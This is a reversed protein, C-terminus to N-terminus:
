FRVRLSSLLKRMANARHPLGFQPSGVVTNLGAYTVRNLINTADIRWDMSWRNSLLFTRTIGTNLSFQAPGTISNRGANGWEGPEPAGFAAPNVYFGHPADDVPAGTYSARLAGTLGTGALSTLYLPTAPLGSGVSLQSTFVWNRLFSTGAYEVQATLLHRQDFASPAREADLDLWNQAIAGGSLDATTFAAANDTAKAFTYNAVAMLGQRLRRRVQLQAANKLSSGNSALYVFGSPCSACPNAAGLPYTNPVFEQMLHSGKTGLYTAIVTLSAPLDRQVSVQWNHAYSVRFDPDVAFTNALARAPANFGNALTLPHEPTREISLAKSLPPQQALMLAISQYVATNRYIGWGARIVLSSGAVPRLAIGLRPQIGRRDPNLAAGVVPTAAAFGPAVDLNVLRGLGESFPAEYEWRLGLNVTLAPNIRWDDTVYANLSRGRLSKDANGFAIAASHPSGLLFDAVDSGTLSGDFSFTGRANQQGFVNVSQPRLAGGFTFNHGGRTRWLAESSFGHIRSQQRAYQGTGFGAIGSSFVLAPPGWNVPTQDNGEIGASGSVNVRNAFHPTSDNTQRLFQYGIRLTLFQNFRHSWTTSTDLTSTRTADVFGFVNSADTSTRQYTATGLLSDRSGIAHNVRSQFNDQSTLSVTTTEYNYGNGAEVNPAPFHALLAAAQPSIRSGPIVNNSFPQGTEPDRIERSGSFDGTREKLTPMVASQASANHDTSHQYGAFFVPRNRVGPIRFPGGISGMFQMDTYDPRPAREASFSFPRADLAATGFTFGFGGNYLSRQGPRNNGFARSQAFPSAAANNVSGNVLFGEAAQRELEPDVVDPAIPAIPANPATPAIPATAAVVAIKRIEEFPLLTLELSATATEDAVLDRTLAAFGLMEIRISYPGDALGTLRYRGDGNAAAVVKKDGQTAIVTAGPVPLGNFTVLGHQDGEAFLAPRALAVVLLAACFRIRRRGNLM